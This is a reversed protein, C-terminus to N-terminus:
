KEGMRDMIEQLHKKCIYVGYDSEVMMCPTIKDKNYEDTIVKFQEWKAKSYGGM